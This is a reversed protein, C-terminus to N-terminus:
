IYFMEDKKEEALKFINMAYVSNNPMKNVM